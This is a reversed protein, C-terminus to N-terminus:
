IKPILAKNRRSVVIVSTIAALLVIVTVTGFEPIVFTGVFEITHKGPEFEVTVQNGDVEFNDWEEGDMLVMHIGSIVSPSPRLTMTGDNAAFITVSISKESPKLAVDSVSAGSIEYPICQDGALLEDQNCISPSPPETPEPTAPPQTTSSVVTFELTATNSAKPHSATVTYTGEIFQPLTPKIIYKFSGEGSIDLPPNYILEGNPNVVSIRVPLYSKATVPDVEGLVLFSDRPEISTKYSSLKIETQAFSEMPVMLAIVSLIGVIALIKM